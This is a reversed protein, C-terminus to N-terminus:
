ATMFASSSRRFAHFFLAELAALTRAALPSVAARRAAIAVARATIRPAIASGGGPRAAHGIGPRRHAPAPSRHTGAAGGHRRLGARTLVRPCRHAMRAISIV